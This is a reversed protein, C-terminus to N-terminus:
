ATVALAEAAADAKGWRGPIGRVELRTIAAPLVPDVTLEDGNPELGLIV